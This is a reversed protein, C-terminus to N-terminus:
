AAYEKARMKLHPLITENWIQCVRTLDISTRKSRRLPPTEKAIQTLTKGHRVYSVLIFRERPALGQMFYELRDDAEISETPDFGNAAVNENFEDDITFKQPCCDLKTLKARRSRPLWDHERIGDFMSGVIRKGFWNEAKSGGNPDFSEAAQILGIM